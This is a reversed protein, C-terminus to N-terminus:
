EVDVEPVPIGAAGFAHVMATFPPPGPRPADAGDAGQGLLRRTLTSREELLEVLAATADDSKPARDELAARLAAQRMLEKIFAGTLGETRAVIDHEDAADLPVDQAYLRVLKKRAERDPLPIELALDVRGPRTALAPEILDARNTTLLFLLDADEALGEIQNLLEFLIGTAGSSMTREAAVLDVDELVVTAPTLERAIAVAPEILSLGRGTLLVTTRGPMAGLLYNVTLTKGTGPPGHLLVGRKLQRGTASLRPALQAMGITQRELREITGEPLVVADRAIAPLDHFQVRLSQERAQPHLSIVKGRYVNHERMAARLDALLASVVGDAPSIGELRLREQGFPRESGSVVLAVPAGDRRALFVGTSVCRIVRGDGVEVDTYQVPGVDMPGVMGRGSLIGSLGLMTFHPNAASIGVVVADPLVADLALQLNPHDTPAFEASTSPLQRPDVGLHERMRAAVESEVARAAMSMSEVFETFAAGFARVDPLKKAMSRCYTKPAALAVM